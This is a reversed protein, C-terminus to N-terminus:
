EDEREGQLFEPFRKVVDEWEERGGVLRGVVELVEDVGGRVQVMSDRERLTM